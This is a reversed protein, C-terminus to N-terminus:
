DMRYPRQEMDVQRLSLLRESEPKALQQELYDARQGIDPPREPQNRLFRTVLGPGERVEPALKLAARYDALAGQYDAMRDKLIGRNAYAVGLIRNQEAGSRSEQRLISQNYAALAAAYNQRAVAAAQDADKQRGSDALRASEAQRRIGIQMLAQAKGRLAGLNEGNIALAKSFAALADPYNEDELYRLGASLLRTEESGGTTDPDYLAWGFWGLTLLAAVRM